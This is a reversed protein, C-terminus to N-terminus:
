PSLAVEGLLIVLGLHWVKLVEAVRLLIEAAEVLLLICCRLVNIHEFAQASQLLEVVGELLLVLLHLRREDRAVRARVAEAISTTGALWSEILVLHTELLVGLMGADLYTRLLLKYLKVFKTSQTFFYNPRRKQLACAHCHFLRVESQRLGGVWALHSRLWHEHFRELHELGFPVVLPGIVLVDIVLEAGQALVQGNLADLIIKTYFYTVLM